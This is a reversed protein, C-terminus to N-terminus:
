YILPKARVWGTFIVSREVGLDKVLQMVENYYKRGGGVISKPIGNM